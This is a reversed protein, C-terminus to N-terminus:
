TDFMHQLSMYNQPLLLFLACSRTIAFCYPIDIDIDITDITDIIDITDITYIHVDNALEVLELGLQDGGPSQVHKAASEQVQRGPVPPSDPMALGCQASPHHRSTYLTYLHIYIYEFIIIM